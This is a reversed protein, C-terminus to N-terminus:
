MATEWALLDLVGKRNALFNVGYVMMPNSRHKIDAVYVYTMINQIDM